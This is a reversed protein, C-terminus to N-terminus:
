EGREDLVSEMARSFVEDCDGDTFVAIVESAAYAKWWMRESIESGDEAALHARLYTKVIDVAKDVREEKDIYEM